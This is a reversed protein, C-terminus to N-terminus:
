GAVQIREIPESDDKGFLSIEVLASRAPRESGLDSLSELGPGREIWRQVLADLLLLSVGYGDVGEGRATSDLKQILSKVQERFRSVKMKEGVVAQRLDELVGAFEQSARFLVNAHEVLPRSWERQELEDLIGLM